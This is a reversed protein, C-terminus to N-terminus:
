KERPKLKKGVDSSGLNIAGDLIEEDWLGSRHGNATILNVFIQGKFKCHSRFSEVKTAISRATAKDLCYPENSYKIECIHIPGDTRIILLDIQAGISSSKRESRIQWSSLGLVLNRIKLHDIILDRHQLCFNEFAYGSWTNVTPSGMENQWFSDISARRAEWFLHFLCFEDILRYSTEKRLRGFPTFSEIFGSLELNQLYKNATGGSNLKAGALIENRLMGHKRSGLVRVIREHIQYDDFLSRFLNDFEYRLDGDKQFYLDDVLQSASKGKTLLSWYYPVGGFVLYLKLIEKDALRIKQKTLYEKVENFSFPRLM